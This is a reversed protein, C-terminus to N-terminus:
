KSVVTHLKGAPSGQFEELKRVHKRVKVFKSVLELFDQQSLSNGWASFLQGRLSELEAREAALVMPVEGLTVRPARKVM